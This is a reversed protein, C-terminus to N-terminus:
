HGYIRELRRQWDRLYDARWRNVTKAGPYEREQLARDLNDTWYSPGHDTKIFAGGWHAKTPDNVEGRFLYTLTPTDGMKLDSKQELYLKGLAGRPAVHQAVFSENGLDGVQEGRVYMGRFTTNAEIWWLDRHAQYVYDRAYPDNRTNWSGGSYVRIKRKIDPVDHLAQALDSTGGWVLVWLPRKDKRRACEILLRSGDTPAGWGPPPYAATAGSKCRRKLENPALYRNSAKRLLPYDAAYAEFLVDMADLRGHPPSSIVGELDFLDCYQLLHIMSQHDDPDGGGIDTSVFVRFREGALAGGTLEEDFRVFSPAAATACLSSIAQRRSLQM